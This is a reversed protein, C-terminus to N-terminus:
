EPLGGGDTRPTLMAVLLCACSLLLHAPVVARSLPARTRPQLASHLSVSRRAWLGRPDKGGSSPWVTGSRTLSGPFVSGDHVCVCACTHAQTHSGARGPKPQSCPQPSSPRVSPTGRGGTLPRHEGEVHSGESDLGAQTEQRSDRAWYPLPEATLGHPSPPCHTSPWLTRQGSQGRNGWRYFLPAPGSM